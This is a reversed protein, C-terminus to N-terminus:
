AVGELVAVVEKSAPPFEGTYVVWLLLMGTMPNPASYFDQTVSELASPPVGRSRLAKHMGKRIVALHRTIESQELSSLKPADWDNDEFLVVEANQIGVRERLLNAWQEPPTKSVEIIRGGFYGGGTRILFAFITTQQESTSM